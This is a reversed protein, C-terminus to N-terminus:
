FKGAQQVPLQQLRQPAQRIAIRKLPQQPPVRQPPVRQRQGDREDRISTNIFNTGNITGIIRIRQIRVTM